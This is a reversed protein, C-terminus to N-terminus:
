GRPTSAADVAAIVEDVAPSTFVDELTCRRGDPGALPVRWNPHQDARTGPQNQTRREGVADTLAVCRLRSPTRTLYRHLAVVVRHEDAADPPALVGARILEDLWAQKAAEHATLEAAAPRTLLGLRDRLHVHEGALYGTTPPIDHTTVSALCDRRWRQAPLPAGHEDSEFWLISTGLVGREHLYTHVWPEVNGLDEGVLVAGARHAELLLIGIIAEHDYHVYTGALAPQGAPIWWLRFLGIIHDVRLGGAHRLMARFLERLPAYGLEALRDPRWPPQEWDQGLQSYDDPPAGVSVGSALVDRYSWADAGRPNVGVALDHLVGIRMGAAVADDQTRALQEELVWQLWCFFRVRAPDAQASAPDQLEAPWATWDSGYRESLACWTAFRHLADGEAVVFAAFENERTASRGSAYVRELATVKATWSADRDILEGAGSPARGAIAAPDCEPIDAVRLYAPNAFRRSTPLYPSDTLPPRVEAAHLPNVLVFDAGHERASWTALARLDGLDGTGWSDCSTVSYLQVAFGWGPETM